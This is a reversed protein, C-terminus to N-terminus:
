EVAAHRVRGGDHGGGAGLKPSLRKRVTVGVAGGDVGWIAAPPITGTRGTKLPVRVRRIGEKLRLRVIREHAHIGRLLGDIPLLRGRWPRKLALRTSAGWSNRRIVMEPLVVVVFTM